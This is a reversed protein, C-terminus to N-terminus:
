DGCVCVCVCLSIPLIICIQLILFQVRACVCRLEENSDRILNEIYQLHVNGMEAPVPLQVGEGGGAQSSPGLPATDPGDVESDAPRRTNHSVPQQPPSSDSECSLQSCSSTKPPSSPATPYNTQSTTPIPLVGESQGTICVVSNSSMHIYM